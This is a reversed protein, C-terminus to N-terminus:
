ARQHPRASLSEYMRRAEDGRLYSHMETLRGHSYRGVQFHPTTVSAGSIPGEVTVEAESLVWDGRGEVSLLKFQFQGAVDVLDQLHRVFADAGRFVDTDPFDPGEYFVVDPAWIHRLAEVNGANWLEYGRRATRMNREVSNEM